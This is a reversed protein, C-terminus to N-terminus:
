SGGRKSRPAPELLGANYQRIFELSIKAKSLRRAVESANKWKEASRTLKKEKATANQGQGQGNTRPTGEDDSEYEHDKSLERFSPSM